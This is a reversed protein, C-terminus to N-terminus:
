NEQKPFDELCGVGHPLILGPTPRITYARLVELFVSVLLIGMGMNVLILERRSKMLAQIINKGSLIVIYIITGHLIMRPVLWLRIDKFILVNIVAFTVIVFIIKDMVSVAQRYLLRLLFILVVAGTLAIIYQSLHFPFFSDTFLYKIQGICFLYGGIFLSFFSFYRQQRSLFTPLRSFVLFFLAIFLYLSIFFAESIYSYVVERSMLETPGVRYRGWIMGFSDNLYGRVRVALTNVGRENILYGPLQYYRMRDFAHVSTDSISGTAGIKVGNFYVEDSDCIKGLMFIFSKRSAGREFKLRVRYWAVGRYALNIDFLNGPVPALKWNRDYYLSKAYVMSDRFKVKWNGELSVIKENSVVFIGAKESPNEGVAYGPLLFILFFIYFLSFFIRKM